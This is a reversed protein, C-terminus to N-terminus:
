RLESRYAESLYTEFLPAFQRVLVTDGPVQTLVDANFRSELTIIYRGRQLYVRLDSAENDGCDTADRQFAPEDVTPSELPEFGQAASIENLIDSELVQEADAATAYADTTYRIFDFGFQADCEVNDVQAVVRYAFNNDSLASSYADALGEPADEPLDNSLVEEATYSGTVENVDLQNQQVVEALPEFAAVVEEATAPETDDVFTTEVNDPDTIIVVTELAAGEFDPNQEPDRLRLDETNDQGQLVEGFITHRYNLWPTPDLTIFFQSGNTGPGSNAMALLGPRDFVLFGAFEDRFQYGPGGTGTGTPDGGQAMFDELVRHFTTNNYFGQEALFVFSNVTVPAFQEFLDIYIPGAETCFVARYDTDASLVDAPETYERTEPEDAPTAAECIAEPTQPASEDQASLAAGGLALVGILLLGIARRFHLM